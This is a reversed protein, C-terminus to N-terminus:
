AFIHFIACHFEAMTTDQITNRKIEWGVILFHECMSINRNSNNEWPWDISILFNQMEQEATVIYSSAGRKVVGNM